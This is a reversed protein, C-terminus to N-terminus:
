QCNKNHLMSCAPVIHAAHTYGRSNRLMGDTIRIAQRTTVQHIDLHCSRRKFDRRSLIHGHSAREHASRHRRQINSQSQNKQNCNEYRSDLIFPSAHGPESHQNSTPRCSATGRCHQPDTIMVTFCQLSRPLLRVVKRCLCPKHM